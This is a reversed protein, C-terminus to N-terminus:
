PLLYCPVQDQRQHSLLSGPPLSLESLGSPPTPPVVPLSLALLPGALAQSLSLLSSPAGSSSFTPRHAPLDLTRPAAMPLLCVVRLQTMYVYQLLLQFCSSTNLLSVVPDADAKHKM